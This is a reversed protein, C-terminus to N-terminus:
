NGGQDKNRDVLTPNPKNNNKLSRSISNDLLFLAGAVLLSALCKVISSGFVTAPSSVLVHL